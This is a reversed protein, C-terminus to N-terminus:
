LCTEYMHNGKGTRYSFCQLCAGCYFWLVEVLHGDVETVNHAEGGDGREAIGDLHDIKEIVQVCQKVGHERVVVDVLDSCVDWILM